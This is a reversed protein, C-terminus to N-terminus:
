KLSNLYELIDAAEQATLTQILGEPMMSIPSTTTKTIQATAITETLGAAMKLTLETETRATIFGVKTDGTKLELTTLQWQPDIVKSPAILQELMAARNWKTGIHSLDPGSPARPHRQKKPNVNSRQPCM